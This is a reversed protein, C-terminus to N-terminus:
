YPFIHMIPIPTNKKKFSFTLSNFLYSFLVTKLALDYPPWYSVLRHCRHPKQGITCAHCARVSYENEFIFHDYFIICTYNFSPDSGFKTATSQFKEQWPGQTSISGYNVMYISEFSRFYQSEPQTM